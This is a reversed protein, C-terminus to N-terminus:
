RREMLLDGTALVSARWGPPVVTTSGSEDVIAPGLIDRRLPLRSRDYIPVDDIWEGFHVSRRETEADSLEGEVRWSPLTPKDMRGIAAVHFNVIETPADGRHGFRREHVEYFAAELQERSAIEAPAEV